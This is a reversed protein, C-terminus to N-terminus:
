PENKIVLFERLELVYRAVAERDEEQYDAFSTMSSDHIGEDLTQLIGELTPGNTWQDAPADFGFLEQDLSRGDGTRGHCTVCVQKYVQAGRSPELKPPEPRQTAGDKAPQPTSSLAEDDARTEAESSTQCASAVLLLVVVCPLLTPHSTPMIKEEQPLETLSYDLAVIKTCRSM